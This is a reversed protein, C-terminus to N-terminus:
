DDALEVGNHWGDGCRGSFYGIQNTHEVTHTVAEDSAAVNGGFSTLYTYFAATDGQAFHSFNGGHLQSIGRTASELIDADLDCISWGQASTGNNGLDYGSQFCNGQNSLLAYGGTAQARHQTPRHLRIKRHSEPGRFLRARLPAMSTLSTGGPQAVTQSASPLLSVKQGIGGGTAAVNEDVYNKDAAQNPSVPDAPLVLPGTMTDGAKQVYPSSDLPFGTAAAAIANDVYQKSVTQMAVSVPLVQNKIEALTAPGGGPVTVPVVWYERSTTGDSLHFIATYYSGM